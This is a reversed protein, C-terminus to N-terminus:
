VKAMTSLRSAVGATESGSRPAFEQAEGGRAFVVRGPVIGRLNAHRSVKAPSRDHGFVRAARFSM